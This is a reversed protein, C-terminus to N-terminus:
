TTKSPTDKSTKNSSVKSLGTVASNPAPLHARGRPLGTGAVCGNFGAQRQREKLFAQGEGHWSHQKEQHRRYPEQHGASHHEKSGKELQLGM